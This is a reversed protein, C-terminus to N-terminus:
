RQLAVPRALLLPFAKHVVVAVAAAVVAKAVDGPLYVVDIGAAKILDIHAVLSMGIIGFLHNVVVGALAAVFLWVGEPRRNTRVFLRSLYGIVFAALPFSLLYGISPKGFMGIGAGGNAFVPLGAFGVALYLLVAAAGRWPGLVLGIIMVGLAQLTIPVGLAGVPIAPTLSLAALLAAFVAVLALDLASNNSRM